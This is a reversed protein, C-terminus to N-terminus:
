RIHSSVSFPQRIKITDGKAPGDLRKALPGLLGVRARAEGSM